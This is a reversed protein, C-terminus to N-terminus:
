TCVYCHDLRRTPRNKAIYSFENTNDLFEKLNCQHGTRQRRGPQTTTSWTTVTRYLDLLLHTPGSLLRCPPLGHLSGRGGTRVLVMDGGTCAQRLGSWARPTPCLNFYYYYYYYYYYYHRHHHHKFNNDCLGRSPKNCANRWHTAIFVTM